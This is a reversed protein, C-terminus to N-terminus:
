LSLTLQTCSTCLGVERMVGVIPFIDEVSRPLNRAVISSVSNANDKTTAKSM